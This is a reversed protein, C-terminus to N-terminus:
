NAHHIKKKLMQDSVTMVTQRPAPTKYLSNSPNIGTKFDGRESERHRTKKKREREREEREGEETEGRDREGRERM